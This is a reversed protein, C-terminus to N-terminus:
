EARSGATQETTPLFTGTESYIGGLLLALALLPVVACTVYVPAFGITDVLPLSLMPGLGGGVDGLVNNTASTRGMRDTPTLDALLALLPGSTGGQGAGILLCAVVLTELTEATALLGFGGASVLLFAILIPVRNGSV